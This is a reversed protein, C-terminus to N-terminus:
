SRQQRAPHPNNSHVFIITTHFQPTIFLYHFRSNQNHSFIHKNITEKDKSGGKIVIFM